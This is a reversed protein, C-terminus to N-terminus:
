YTASLNLSGQGCISLAANRVRAADDVPLFRVIESNLLAVKNNQSVVVQRPSPEGWVRTYEVETVYILPTASYNKRM